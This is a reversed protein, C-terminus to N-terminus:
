RCYLAGTAAGPIITVHKCCHVVHDSPAFPNPKVIDWLRAFNADTLRCGSAPRNFLSVQRVTVPNSKYEVSTVDTNPCTGPVYVIIM